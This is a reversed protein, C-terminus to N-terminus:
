RNFSSKLFTKPEICRILFIFHSLCFLEILLSWHLHPFSNQLRSLHDAVEIVHRTKECM